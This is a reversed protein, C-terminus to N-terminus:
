ELVRHVRRHPDPNQRWIERRLCGHHRPLHRHRYSPLCIGRELEQRRRPRRCGRATNDALAWSMPFIDYPYLPDKELKELSKWLYDDIFHERPNNTKVVAPLKTRDTQGMMMPWYYKGKIEACPGYSGPQLCLVKSKGDPGIWWFPRHSLEMSLGVRDCGNNFIFVYPIGHRAAAPVVGWSMGPIDVQMITDFKIGTLKEIRKTPGFFAAFEEDASVSTNDNIYSAGIHIIGQRVADSLQRRRRLDTPM